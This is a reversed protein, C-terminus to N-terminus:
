LDRAKMQSAVVGNAFRAFRGSMGQWATVAGSLVDACVKPIMPPFLPFKLSDWLM